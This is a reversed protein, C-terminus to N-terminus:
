FEINVGLTPLLPLMGSTNVNQIIANDTSEDEYQIFWINKRNGVNFVQLYPSLSWGDYQKTYTISVDMRVYAPLRYSNISSPYVSFNRFGGPGQGLSGGLDPLTGASYVSSPVTIPQGSTYVFNMGFQWDSSGQQYSENIYEKWLKNINFNSVVNFVHTRDHRPSYSNDQNINTFTHETFALSYGAWGTISGTDKKLLIEFGASKGNGHDFLAQTDNYISSGDATYDKATIDTLFTQNFQYINKYNKYYGEVELFFHNSLEKQFGGIFHTSSSERQYKDSTTWFSSIFATTVRHLYQHYIGTAFKLNTSETLKYKASFRPGLNQFDKDSDFYNYRLGAKIDWRNTPKWNTQLYGVYHTRYSDVDVLGKPFNQKFVGHMNKQEFGFLMTWQSSMAYELNGKFTLDTLSNERNVDLGDVDFYSSFRSATVWFNAFLKPTFVRTWRISGNTNGWDFNFGADESSNENFNYGLVDRGCFFSLTLKNNANVDFFAKINGDYFYYDPIDDIFNAVTKDFYTRRISGSISGFNGLPMQLTTKASLLSVTVSGEFKERNGDLYTVNMISSLRGGFESSFGGKSLDVHKIADTNFTSFIGFAHEPNYVDAGDIMYLNQDPTGGRVYLASSFDSLPLIGPLTQLSRLLDTEAVQPIRKIEMASLEVRSIPQRFLKEATRISEAEVVITEAVLTSEGLKIHFRHEKNSTVIIKQSKSKYGIYECILTYEGAPVDPIVFYGSLNTSSGMFNEKLYVNAGILTEFNSEDYIFGNITGTNNQAQLVSGSIIFILCIVLLNKM